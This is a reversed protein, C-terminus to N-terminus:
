FYEVDKFSLGKKDKESLIYGKELVMWKINLDADNYAMTVESEPDYDNDVKYSFITNDELVLFGHAFGRPVFLQLKNEGTLEIAIYQGFSASEERLDVIVDLVSGQIVKVLKAQAADGRQFHLGRLVGANSKSENDQIFSINEGVGECFKKLNFTEFFYGREDKYVSPEILFADNLPLRKFMM